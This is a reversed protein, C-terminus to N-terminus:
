KNGKNATSEFTM